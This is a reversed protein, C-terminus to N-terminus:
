KYKQPNLKRDHKEHIISLHWSSRPFTKNSDRLSLSIRYPSIMLEGSGHGFKSGPGRRYRLLRVADVKKVLSGQFFKSMFGNTYKQIISQHQQYIEDSMLNKSKFIIYIYDSVNEKVKDVGVNVIVEIDGEIFKAHYIIMKPQKFISHEWKMDPNLGSFAEMAEVTSFEKIVKDSSTLKALLSLDNLYIKTTNKHKYNKNDINKHVFELISEDIKLHMHIGNSSRGVLKGNKVAFMIKGLGSKADSKSSIHVKESFEPGLNRGFYYANIEGMSDTVMFDVQEVLSGPEIVVFDIVNDQKDTAILVVNKDFLYQYKPDYSSDVTFFYITISVVILVVILLLKKV